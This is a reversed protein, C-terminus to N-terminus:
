NKINSGSSNIPTRNHFNGGTGILKLSKGVKEEILNVTDPKRPPGHDVYSKFKAFPSLYSDIKM